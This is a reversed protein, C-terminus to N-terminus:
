KIEYRLFYDTASHILIIHTKTKYYKYPNRLYLSLEAYLRPLHIAVLADVKQKNAITANKYLKEYEWHTTTACTTELVLSAVKNPTKM